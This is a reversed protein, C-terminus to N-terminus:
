AQAGLENKLLRLVEDANPVRGYAVVKENVVLGPTRMIGYSMISNIDTVKVIEADIGGKTLAERVNKELRVCNSCGPGLVKVVMKPM